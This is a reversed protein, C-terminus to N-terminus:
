RSSAHPPSYCLLSDGFLCALQIIYCPFDWIQNQAIYRLKRFTHEQPVQFHFLCNCSDIRKIGNQFSLKEILHLLNTELLQSSILYRLLPIQFFFHSFKCRDECYKYPMSSGASRWLQKQSYNARPIFPVHWPVCSQDHGGVWSHEIYRCHCYQNMM